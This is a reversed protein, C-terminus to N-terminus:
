VLSTSNSIGIVEASISGQVAIICSPNYGYFPSPNSVIFQTFQSCIKLSPYLAAQFNIVYTGNSSDGTTITYLVLTGESVNSAGGITVESPFATVGFDLKSPHSATDGVAVNLMSSTNFSKSTPNYYYLRTCILVSSNQPAFIKPATFPAIGNAFQQSCPNLVTSANSTITTTVPPQTSIQTIITSATIFSTIQPRYEYIGAAYGGFAAALVLVVIVVASIRSVAKSNM